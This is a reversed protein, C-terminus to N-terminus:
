MRGHVGMGGVWGGAQGAMTRRGYGKDVWRSDIWEREMDKM